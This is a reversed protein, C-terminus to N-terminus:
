CTELVMSEMTLGPGFAAAFVSGATDNQAMRHFERELVFLVTPSSMNGFERLIEYSSALASKDIALGDAVKDLIKRGGPHIAWGAPLGSTGAARQLLQPIGEGILDPVFRGLEMRFGEEDPHWAMESRGSPLFVSAFNRLRFLSKKGSKDEGRLLVAAAGDGFLLTSALNDPRLDARIHLTCLETCVILVRANAQARCIYDAQKLAHIAAYCGMFHICSRHTEPRLNLSECLMLDLGPAAMGTCSVAFLHSIEKPDFELGHVAKLSLPLAHRFYLNMREAMGGATFVSDKKRLGSWEEPLQSFDPLVSYRGDIASQSAIRRLLQAAKEDMKLNTELFSCLAEQSHRYEPVATSISEIVTM